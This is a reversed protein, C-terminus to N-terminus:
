RDAQRNSQGRGSHWRGGRATAKVGVLILPRLVWPSTLGPQVLRWGHRVCRAHCQGTCAMAFAGLSALKARCVVCREFFVVAQFPSDKYVPVLLPHRGSSDAAEVNWGSPNERWRTRVPWVQWGSDEIIGMLSYRAKRTPRSPYPILLSAGLFGFGKRDGAMGGALASPWNRPATSGELPWWALSQQGADRRRRAGEIGRRGLAALEERLLRPFSKM